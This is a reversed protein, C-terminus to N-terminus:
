SKAFPTLKLKSPLPLVAVASISSLQQISKMGSLRREATPLILSKKKPRVM